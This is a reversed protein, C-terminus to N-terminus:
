RKPRRKLTKASQPDYLSIILKVENFDNIHVRRQWEHLHQSWLANLDSGRGQWYYAHKFLRKVEGRRKVIDLASVGHRNKRVIDAFDTTEDLVEFFRGRIAAQILRDHAAADNFSMQLMSSPEPIEIRGSMYQEIQRHQQIKSSLASIYAMDNEVTEKAHNIFYGDYHKLIRHYENFAYFRSNRHGLATEGRRNEINPNAAYQLLLPIAQPLHEVARHLATDGDSRMQLNPDAGGELCKKVQDLTGVTVALHLPSVGIMNKSSYRVNAGNDLLWDAIQTKGQQLAFILPTNGIENVANIDIKHTQVLHMVEDLNGHDIARFLLIEKERSATM